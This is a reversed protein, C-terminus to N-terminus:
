LHIIFRFIKFGFNNITHMAKMTVGAWLLDKQLWFSQGMWFQAELVKDFVGKWARRM